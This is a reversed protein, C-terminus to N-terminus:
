SLAVFGIAKKIAPTRRAKPPAKRAPKARNAKANSTRKPTSGGGSIALGGVVLAMIAIPLFGLGAEKPTDLPLPNGYEDLLPEGFEDLQFAESPYEGQGTTPAYPDLVEYDSFQPQTTPYPTYPQSQLEQQPFNDFPSESPYDNYAPQQPFTPTPDISVPPVQMRPIQPFTNQPIQPISPYIGSGDYGDDDEFNDIVPFAPPMTVIPTNPKPTLMNPTKTVESLKKEVTKKIAEVKQVDGDKKAQKIDRNSKLLDRKLKREDKKSLGNKEALLEVKSKLDKKVERNQKARQIINPKVERKTTRSEQRIAKLAERKAKGKLDSNRIEKKSERKAVRVEKKSQIRSATPPPTVGSRAVIPKIEVPKRRAAKLAERRAKGKLDSDRIAKREARKDQRVEKRTQPIPIIPRTPAVPRLALAAPVPSATRSLVKTTIALVQTEKASLPKGAAQKAEIKSKAKAARAQQQEIRKPSPASKTRNFLGRKPASPASNRSPAKSIERKQSRAARRAQRKEKGAISGVGYYDDYGEDYGGYDDSEYSEGGIVSKIDSSLAVLSGMIAVVSAVTVPEGIAGIEQVGGKKIDRKLFPKRTSGKQMSYIFNKREGGLKYFLKEQKAAIQRLRQHQTQSMKNAVQAYPKYADFLRSSIGFVNLKLANMWGFRLPSAQVKAAGRGVKRIVRGFVTKARKPQFLSRSELESKTTRRTSRKARRALRRAQREARGAIGNIGSLEQIIMIDKNKSYQVEYNFSDVVPDIVFYNNRSKQTLTESINGSKPVVVYIHQWDGKYATVRVKHPIGLNSLVTSAFIAYDDCDGKRDAWTRNPQRLEEIGTRDRVYQVHGYLFNWINRCTEELTAGKLAAAIKSTQAVVSGNMGITAIANITYETSGWNKLITSRGNSKSFYKDYESGSKINRKYAAEM